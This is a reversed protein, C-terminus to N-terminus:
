RIARGGRGIEAHFSRERKQKGGGQQRRRQSKGVSNRRRNGRGGGGRGAKHRRRGLNGALRIKQIIEVALQRNGHAVRIQPHVRGRQGLQHGGVEGELRQAFFAQAQLLGQQHRGLAPFGLTRPHKQIRFGRHRHRIQNAAHDHLGAVVGAHRQGLRNGAAFLHKALHHRAFRAPQAHVARM